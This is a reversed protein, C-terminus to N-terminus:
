KCFLYFYTGILKLTLRKEKTERIQIIEQKSLFSWLCMSPKVPIEKRKFQEFNTTNENSEEENNSSYHDTRTHLPNPQIAPLVYKNIEFEYKGINTHLQTCFSKESM